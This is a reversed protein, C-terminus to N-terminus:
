PRTKSQKLRQWFDDPNAELAACLYFIEFDKIIVKQREIQNLRAASCTWGESLLRAAAQELTWGRSVRIEKIAPGLANKPATEPSM